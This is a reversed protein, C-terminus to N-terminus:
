TLEYYFECLDPYLWDVIVKFDEYAAEECRTTLVTGYETVRPEDGKLGYPLECKTLLIGNVTGRVFECNDPIGCKFPDKVLTRFTKEM